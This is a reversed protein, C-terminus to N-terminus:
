EFPIIMTNIRKVKVAKGLLLGILKILHHWKSTIPGAMWQLHFRKVRLKQPRDNLGHDRWLGLLPKSLATLISSLANSLM